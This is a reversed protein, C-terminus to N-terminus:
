AQAFAPANNFAEAATTFGSAQVATVAVSIKVSGLDTATDSVKVTSFVPLPTTGDAEQATIKKYYIGNGSGDVTNLVTWGNNTIETPNKLSVDAGLGLVNIFVFTEVGSKITVYPAKNLDQGPVVNSYAYGGDPTGTFTEEVLKQPVTEKADVVIGNALTFTNKVATDDKATLYALTGVVATCAVLAIATISMVLKKTKM